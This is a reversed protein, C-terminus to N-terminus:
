LKFNKGVVKRIKFKSFDFTSFYEELLRFYSDLNLNQKPNM